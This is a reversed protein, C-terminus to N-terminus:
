GLHFDIGFEDFHFFLVRSVGLLLWVEDPQLPNLLLSGVHCNHLRGFLFSRLIFRDVFESLNSELLQFLLILGHQSM